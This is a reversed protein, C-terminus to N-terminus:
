INRRLYEKSLNNEYIKSSDRFYTFPCDRLRSLIFEKDYSPVDCFDIDRFLLEFPLLYDAHNVNKPLIKRILRSLGTRFRVIM